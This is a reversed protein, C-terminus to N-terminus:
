MLGRHIMALPEAGFPNSDKALSRFGLYTARLSDFEKLAFNQQRTLRSKSTLSKRICYRVKRARLDAIVTSGGEFWMQPGQDDKPDVAIMTRQLLGVLLQPTIGGDPNTRFAIRATHVEFSKDPDLGLFRADRKGERDEKFHRRLWDHLGKRVARQRDFIEERSEAYLQEVSPVRLDELHRMLAESPTPDEEDPSRWLLSGVSLTRVGPPFIGRRRFAEIFSVRYDLDDDAILDYDATIIARLYEGFTIDTPPCYDLARICMTLVHQASKAAENALRTVLDPHIAGPRLIGTGGTALRLLDATRRKYISLFADFVAAVLIRGRQHADSVTEYEAPKPKRLAWTRDPQLEGIADRLATHQGTARGFQSALQLLLNEQADIAGRTTAIQQGVLEPFTFHQLMAVCDAFGEHFAHVDRNSPVLFRRHMGDLLAHTTEHAVVDHSLCTFVMGGPLQEGPDVDKARFYGFLLAVKVPSYYANAERLAHPYIRLRRVFHSDDYENEGDRPPRPRWLAKRGLALEFNRITLSAVAYAMQQHFQPVGESPPLGDQALILPADLDVPQYFLDSAPDTDVVELYEGVPGRRLEEWPVKVTVESIGVTDLATALGPDVAYCRLLRHPPTPPVFLTRAMGDGDAMAPAKPAPSRPARRSPRTPAPRPRSRPLAMDNLIEKARRRLAQSAGRHETVVELFDHIQDPIVDDAYRDPDTVASELPNEVGQDAWRHVLQTAELELMRDAASPALATRSLVNLFPFGARDARTEQLTQRDAPAFALATAAQLIGNGLKETNGGDADRNATRFLALRVAEVRMWPEPYKSADALTTAHAQIYLAAAAAIQPTAASTGEGNMRVVHECGWRAWSINPTFGAMATAMSGGPGWNGQMTGTKLGYYPRSDAMVGCAAIVRRFRAPYVIQHTPFGFYGGSINNGAAAVFVIGAEYAKNVADAWAQSAVGGMSMSIVHVRTSEDACLEAAYNIGQAVSSTSFQVVSSGVRVPVIRAKPAGGLDDDFQYGDQSFKFHGGALISLTGTGHGPNKLLGTQGPDRASAPNDADIFNRQLPLDMQGAPFTEHAPDYGTDLHVIRVVAGRDTAASRASRLQSFGDSLHWAFNAPRSPLNQNQDDFVCTEREATLRLREPKPTEYLWEQQLDPEIIEPHVGGTIGQRSTSDSWAAHAVDWPNAGATSGKPRAIYWQKGAGALALGQAQTAFLPEFEFSTGALSLAKPAAM